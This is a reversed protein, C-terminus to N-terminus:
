QVIIKTVTYNEGEHLFVFPLDSKKRSFHHKLREKLDYKKAIKQANSYLSTKGTSM